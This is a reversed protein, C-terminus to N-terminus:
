KCESMETREFDDETKERRRAGARTTARREIMMTMTRRSLKLAVLGVVSACLAFACANTLADSTGTFEEM